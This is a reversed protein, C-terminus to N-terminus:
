KYLTLQWQGVPGTKFMYFCVDEPVESKETDAPSILFKASAAMSKSTPDGAGTVVADNFEQVNFSRMTGAVGVVAQTTLIPTTEEPTAEALETETSDTVESPTNEQIEEAQLQVGAEEKEELNMPTEFVIEVHDDGHENTENQFSIIYEVKDGGEEDADDADDADDTDDVIVIDIPDDEPEVPNNTTPAPDSSTNPDLTTPAAATPIVPAMTVAGCDSRVVVMSMIENRMDDDMEFLVPLRTTENAALPKFSEPYAQDPYVQRSAPRSEPYNQFLAVYIPVATQIHIWFREKSQWRYKIPNVLTGDQLEFWVKIGLDATCVPTTDVPKTTDVPATDVPKTTDPEDVTPADGTTPKETPTQTVGSPGVPIEVCSINFKSTGGKSLIAERVAMQANKALQTFAQEYAARSEQANSETFVAGGGYCVCQWFLLFM